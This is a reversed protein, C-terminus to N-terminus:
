EVVWLTPKGTNDFHWMGDVPTESYYYVTYPASDSSRKTWTTDFGEPAASQQLYLEVNKDNGIFAEKGITAVNNYLIVDQKLGCNKFAKQEIIILSRPLSIKELIGPNGSNGPNSETSNKEVCFAREKIYTMGEPVVFSTLKVCQEFAREGIGATSSGSVYVETPMDVSELATCCFFAQKDIINISNSMKVTKLSTCGLFAKQKITVIGNPIAISKLATCGEFSSTGITRNSASSSATIESPMIVSELATCGSFALDGIRTFTEPLIIKKLETLGNFGVEGNKYQAVNKVEKFKGNDDIYVTTRKPIVITTVGTFDATADKQVKNETLFELLSLEADTIYNAYYTAGDTVTTSSAVFENLDASTFFGSTRTEALDYGEAAAVAQSLTSNEAVEVEFTTNELGAPATGDTGVINITVTVTKTTPTPDVPDPTVEGGQEDSSPTEGSPQNNKCAVLFGFSFCIMLSLFISLFKKM